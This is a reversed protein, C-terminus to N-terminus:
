GRCLVVVSRAAVNYRQEVIPPAAAPEVIDSPSTLATDIIRRWPGAAQIEFTLSEWYANIMVYLDGNGDAQDRLHFALSRSYPTLDPAAAVGHWRVDTAWGTSRGISPHSKRFAIMMRFFRLIERNAEALSWDLWTTENDQNWPNSHGQQTNLFEDGAVFMPTGNSLMLLCCFNKVQRRRL